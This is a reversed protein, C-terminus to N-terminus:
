IINNMLWSQELDTGSVLVLAMSHGNNLYKGLYMSVMDLM